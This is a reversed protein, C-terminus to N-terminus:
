LYTNLTLNLTEAYNKYDVADAGAVLQCEKEPMLM